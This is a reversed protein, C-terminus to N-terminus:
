IEYKTMTDSSTRKKEEYIKKREERNRVHQQHVETLDTTFGRGHKEENTSNQTERDMRHAGTTDACDERPPEQHKRCGRNSTDTTKEALEPYRHLRHM